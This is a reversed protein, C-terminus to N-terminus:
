IEVDHISTLYNQAVYYDVVKEKSLNMPSMLSLNKIMADYEAISQPQYAFGFYSGPHDGASIAVKEFYGLEYLISGFISIGGVIEQMISYNSTDSSIWSVNPYKNKLIDVIKLSEPRQNPHPKVAIKLENDQIVGITHDAWSYIDDFLYFGNDSPGDFFDHLFLVGDVKNEIKISQGTYSNVKMYFMAFDNAGSFRQELAKTAMMRLENINEYSAINDKFEYCRLRHAYDLPLHFKAIPRINGLSYVKVGRAILYRAIYGHQIYSTYSTIYFEINKNEFFKSLFKHICLIKYLLYFLFPDKYNVTPMERFRIYSACVLDGIPIKEISIDLLNKKQQIKIFIKFAVVASKLKDLLNVDEISILSSIGCKEYVEAWKKREINTGFVLCWFDIINNGQFIGHLGIYNWTGYIKITSPNIKKNNVAKLLKKLYQEDYTVCEILGIKSQDDVCKNKYISLNKVDISVEVNSLKSQIILKILSFLKRFDKTLPLLYLLRLKKKM